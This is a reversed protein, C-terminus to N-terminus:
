EAISSTFSSIAIAAGGALALTAGPNEIAFALLPSEDGPPDPLNIGNNGGNNGSGPGIAPDSEGTDIVQVTAPEQDPPSDGRPDITAIITVEGPRSVTVDFDVGVSSSGIQDLPV